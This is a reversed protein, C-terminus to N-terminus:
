EYFITIKVDFFNRFRTPVADMPLYITRSESHAYFFKSIMMAPDIHPWFRHFLDFTASKQLLEVIISNGAM